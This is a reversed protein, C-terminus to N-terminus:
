APSGRRRLQGLVERGAVQQDVQGPVDVAALDELPAVIAAHEVEVRRDLDPVRVGAGRVLMGGLPREIPPVHVDAAHRGAPALRPGGGDEFVAGIGPRIECQVLCPRSSM